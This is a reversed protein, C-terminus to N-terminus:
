IPWQLGDGYFARNYPYNTSAISHNSALPLSPWDPNSRCISLGASNHVSTMRSYEKTMVEVIEDETLNNECDLKLQQEKLKKNEAQLEAYDTKWMDRQTLVDSISKELGKVKLIQKALIPHCLDIAQNYGDTHHMVDRSRNSANKEEGVMELMKEKELKDLATLAIDMKDKKVRPDTYNYKGEVLKELVERKNM